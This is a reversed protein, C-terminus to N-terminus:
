SSHGEQPKKTMLRKIFTWVIPLLTLGIKLLSMSLKM